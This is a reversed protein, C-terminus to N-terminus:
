GNTTEFYDEVIKTALLYLASNGGQLSEQLLQRKERMYVVAFEPDNQVIDRTNSILDALKITKVEPGAKALRERTMKKRTARNGVSKPPDTLDEVMKAVKPGFMSDIQEITVETDEVVDHLFAAAIMEDTHPVSSVINAVELPHVIYDEGSYKRKQGVAMHAGAAFFEAREIM